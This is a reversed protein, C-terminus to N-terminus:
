TGKGAHYNVPHDLFLPRENSLEGLCCIEGLNRADELTQGKRWEFCDLYHLKWPGGSSPGCFVFGSGRIGLMFLRFVYVASSTSSSTSTRV